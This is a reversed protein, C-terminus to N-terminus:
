SLFYKEFEKRSAMWGLCAAILAYIIWQWTNEYSRVVVNNVICETNIKLDRLAIDDETPCFAVRKGYNDFYNGLKGNESFNVAALARSNKERREPEIDKAWDDPLENFLEQKYPISSLDEMTYAIFFHIASWGFCILSGFLILNIAKRSIGNKSICRTGEFIAIIAFLSIFIKFFEGIYESLNIIHNTWEM